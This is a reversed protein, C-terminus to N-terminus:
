YLDQLYYRINRRSSYRRFVSTSFPEEAMTFMRPNTPGLRPSLKMSHPCSSPKHPPYGGWSRLSAACFPLLNINRCKVRPTLIIRLNPNARAQPSKTQPLAIRDQHRGCEFRPSDMDPKALLQRKKKVGVGVRSNTQGAFPNHSPWNTVQCPKL